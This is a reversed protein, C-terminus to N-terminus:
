NQSCSILTLPLRILCCIMITLSTSNNAINDSVVFTIIKDNDPFSSPIVNNNDTIINGDVADIHDTPFDNVNELTNNKSINSCNGKLNEKVNLTRALIIHTSVTGELNSVIVIVNKSPTNEIAMTQDKM